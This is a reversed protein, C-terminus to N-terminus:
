QVLGKKKNKQDFLVVSIQKERKKKCKLDCTGKQNQHQVDDFQNRKLLFFSLQRLDLRVFVKKESKKQTENNNNNNFRKKKRKKM